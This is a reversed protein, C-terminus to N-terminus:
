RQSTVCAALRRALRGPAVVASRTDSTKCSIMRAAMSRSPAGRYTHRRTSIRTPRITMATTVISIRKIASEQARPPGSRHRLPVDSWLWLCNGLAGDQAGLLLRSPPAYRYACEAHAEFEQRWFLAPAPPVDRPRYPRASASDPDHAPGSPAMAVDERGLDFDGERGVGQIRYTSEQHEPSHIPRPRAPRRCVDDIAPPGTLSPRGLTMRNSAKWAFVM